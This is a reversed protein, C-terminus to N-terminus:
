EAKKKLMEWLNIKAVLFGSTEKNPLDYKGQVELAVNKSKSQWVTLDIGAGYPHNRDALADNGNKGDNGPEGQISEGPEGQIGQEGQPGAPCEVCPFTKAYAVNSMLMVVIVLMMIRKMSEGM